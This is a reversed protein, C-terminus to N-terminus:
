RAVRRSLLKGFVLMFFARRSAMFTDSLASKLLDSRVWADTMSTSRVAASKLLDFRVRALKEREKIALLSRRLAVMTFVSKVAQLKIAALKM